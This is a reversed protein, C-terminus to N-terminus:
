RRLPRLSHILHKLCTTSDCTFGSTTIVLEVAGTQTVFMLTCNMILISLSIQFRFIFLLHLKLM